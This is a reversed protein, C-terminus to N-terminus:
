GAPSGRAMGQTPRLFASWSHASPETALRPSPAAESLGATTPRHAFFIWPPGAPLGAMWPARSSVERFVRHFTGLASGLPAAADSSFGPPPTASYHRWLPDGDVLELVLLTRETDFSHCAPLLDRMDAAGPERGCHDYFAAECRITTESAHEGEGPQKILYSPGNRRVVKLNQNRRGADVVQLDGEVIAAASVLGRKILYPVADDVTLNPLTM